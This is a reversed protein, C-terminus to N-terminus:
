LVGCSAQGPGARAQGFFSFVRDGPSLSATTNRARRVAAARAAAARAAVDKAEQTEALTVEM